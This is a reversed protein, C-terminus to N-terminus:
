ALTYGAQVHPVGVGVASSCEPMLPNSGRALPKAVGLGSYGLVQPTQIGSWPNRLLRDLWSYGIAGMTYSIWAYLLLLIAKLAVHVSDRESTMIKLGKTLCQNVHEVMMPNHDDGSLVHCNIHLLDLAECCVGYFKSDKDLVITHCFGYRMQIKMIASAFNKFNAHQVPETSTFSTMGCCAALYTEFGDFSSCKGASYADVFLVLFPAEIPFNYVLESSKRKTTNALPCGPCAACM